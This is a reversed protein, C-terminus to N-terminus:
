EPAQGRGIRKQVREWSKTVLFSKDMDGVMGALKKMPLAFSLTEKPVYPRASVDFMGLVARPNSSKIELYPYKVIAGCGACFPTFVGNPEARDFNALTFLGSLVDPPAQFIVVEPKDAAELMDWRKFVIYKAPARFDPLQQMMERVLEPSKKYREGEVKLPIGCSLFYDFYPMVEDSFGLSRKGSGCALSDADFCLSTGKGVLSLLGIICQHASPPPVQKAGGPQSTYYFTIPLEADNFYRQWSSMFKLKLTMDM